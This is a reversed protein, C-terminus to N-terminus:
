FSKFPELVEVRISITYLDGSSSTNKFNFGFFCYHSIIDIGLWIPCPSLASTVCCVRVPLPSFLNDFGCILHYICSLESHEASYFPPVFEPNLMILLIWHSVSIYSSYALINVLVWVMKIESVIYCSFIFLIIAFFVICLGHHHVPLLYLVDMAETFVFCAKTILPSVICTGLHHILTLFSCDANKIFLVAFVADLHQSKFYMYDWNWILLLLYLIM